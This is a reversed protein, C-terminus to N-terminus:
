MRTSLNIKQSLWNIYLHCLTFQITFSIYLRLIQTCTTGETFTELGTYISIFYIFWVILSVFIFYHLIKGPLTKIRQYLLIFWVYAMPFFIFNQVFGAQSAKIFLGRVPFTIMGIEVLINMSAWTTAEFALFAILALRYKTEPIYFISLCSFLSIAILIFHEISM